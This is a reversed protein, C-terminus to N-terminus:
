HGRFGLPSEIVIRTHELQGELPQRQRGLTDPPRRGSTGLEPVSQSM